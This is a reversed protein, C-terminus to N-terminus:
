SVEQQRVPLEHGADAAKALTKEVGELTRHIDALTKQIKLTLGNMNEDFLGLANALGVEISEVFGKYSGRLLESSARMEMAIQDLHEEQAGTSSALGSVFRDTWESYDRFSASLQEQYAMLQQLYTAQRASTDGMEELIDASDSRALSIDRYHQEITAVYNTFREIVEGSMGQANIVTQAMQSVASAATLMEQQAKAQGAVTDDIMEQLKTFSGGISANMREIFRAVLYDLGEVQARTAANLYEELARQVPAMSVTVARHLEEAMTRGLEHAFAAVSDAQERGYAVMQTARDAPQPVGYMYFARTFVELAKACRGFAFKNICNFLLSGILGAISTAFALSIGSTLRLYSDVDMVDLGSLGVLLGIFTGLIGISTCIGPIIDALQARGPETIMSDEHVFEAIDTSLGRSHSLEESKLYARWVSALRKGLFSPGQWVPKALKAKAGEELLDTARHLASANRLVPRVCKVIGLLFFFLILGYIIADPFLTNIITTINEL